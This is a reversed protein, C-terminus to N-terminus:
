CARVSPGRTFGPTPASGDTPRGPNVLACRPLAAIRFSIPWHSREGKVIAIGVAGCATMLDVPDPPHPVDGRLEPGARAPGPPARRALAPPDAVAPRAAPPAGLDGSALPGRKAGPSLRRRLSSSPRRGPFSGDPRLPGDPRRVPELHPDHRPRRDRR